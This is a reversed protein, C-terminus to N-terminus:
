RESLRTSDVYLRDPDPRGEDYSDHYEFLQFLAGTPNSPPVFAETWDEYERYEVVDFGVAEVADAVADIDAVELTVHHLGPGNDDLFETLFTDEAEPAILELRSASRGFDYQAWRFQGEVTEEILKRCGFALVVQEAAEISEVAIGTHDVRIPTEHAM